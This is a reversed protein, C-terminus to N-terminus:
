QGYFVANALRTLLWDYAMVLGTLFACVFIVVLTEVLVQRRTPWSIKQFEEGVESLFTGAKGMSPGFTPLSFGKLQLARDVPEAASAEGAEQRGSPPVSSPNSM